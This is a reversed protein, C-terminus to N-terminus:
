ISFKRLFQKVTYIKGNANIYGSYEYYKVVIEKKFRKQRRKLCKKLSFINKYLLEKESKQVKIECKTNFSSTLQDKLNM